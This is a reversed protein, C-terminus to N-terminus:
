RRPGTPGGGFVPRLPPSRVPGADGRLLPDRGAPALVVHDPPRREVAKAHGRGDHPAIPDEDGRLGAPPHPTGAIVRRQRAALLGRALLGQAAGSGPGRRALSGLDLEHDLGEMALVAPAQPLVAERGFAVQRRHVVLVVQGAGAGHGVAVEHVGPEPRALEHREVHVSLEDPPTVQPLLVSGELDAPPGPAGRGQVAVQQEEEAVVLGSRVQEGHVFSRPLVPPLHIPPLVHAGVARGDHEGARPSVLQDDVRGLAQLGVVGPGPIEEPMRALGVAERDGDRGEIAGDEVRAAPVSAPGVHRDPRAAPAVDGPAM